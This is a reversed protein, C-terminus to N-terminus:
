LGLFAKIKENSDLFMDVYLKKGDSSDAIFYGRIAHSRIQLIKWVYRFGPDMMDLAVDLKNTKASLMKQEIGIYRPNVAPVSMSNKNPYDVVSGIPKDSSGYIIQENHNM